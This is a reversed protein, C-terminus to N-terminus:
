QALKFEKSWKGKSNIFMGMQTLEDPTRCHRDLGEGYRHKDFGGVGQFIEGCAGCLCSNGSLKGSSRVTLNTLNAM